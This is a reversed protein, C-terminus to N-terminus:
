CSPLGKRVVVQTDVMHWHLVNLKAYPLSDVVGRVTSLPLFHRATDIMLGRHPFRPEDIIAWPGYAVGYAMTEFDFEVLQSFTELGRLAGYV